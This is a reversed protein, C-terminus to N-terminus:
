GAVYIEPLFGKVEMVFSKFKHVPVVPVGAFFKVSEAHLTMIVPVALSIKGNGKLLREAREAQKRSFGSMSSLSSRKWHKCDVAIAFRSSVGVVDIEMRPKTLQVNTRTRYGFSMLIESALKEFDKWSLRRAVQEIDCGNQLALMAAYLRDSGSFEIMNGTIKGVNNSTLFSLIKKAVSGSAIGSAACFKELTTKPEIAGLAKVLLDPHM